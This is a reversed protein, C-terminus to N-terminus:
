VGCEDGVSREVETKAGSVQSAHSTSTCYGAMDASVLTTGEAGM